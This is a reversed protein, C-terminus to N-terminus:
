MAQVMKQSGQLRRWIWGCKGAFAALDLRVERAIAVPGTTYLALCALATMMMFPTRYRKM